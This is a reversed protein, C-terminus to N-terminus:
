FEHYNNFDELLVLALTNTSISAWKHHIIDNDDGYRCSYGLTYWAIKNLGDGQQFYSLWITNGYLLFLRSHGGIHCIDTPTVLWQSPSPSSVYRSEDVPLYIVSFYM